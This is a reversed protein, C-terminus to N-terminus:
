PSEDAAPGELALSRFLAALKVQREPEPAIERIMSVVVALSLGPGNVNSFEISQHPKGITHELYLRAAAVDGDLALEVLRQGIKRINEPTEANILARRLEGRHHQGHNGLGIRSGPMLRGREDRVAPVREPSQGNMNM